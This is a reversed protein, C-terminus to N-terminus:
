VEVVREADSTFYYVEPPRLPAAQSQDGGVNPATGGGGVGAGGATGGTGNTRAPFPKSSYGVKVAYSFLGVRAVQATRAVM